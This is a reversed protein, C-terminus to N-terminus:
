LEAWFLDLAVKIDMGGTKVQLDLDALKQYIKKLKVLPFKRLQALSKKVVFPHLKSVRAIEMEGYGHNEKLDAVKLLNRFQYVFMSLLYFPDEGNKLHKHLLKAAEKKNNNALADITAFINGGLNARVLAEVDVEEIMRGACFNALKQLEFHLARTDSGAFIILKELAAKSISSGPAFETLARLIWQGLKLGSLETFEQSKVDVEKTLFTFLANNKKPLGDEWFVVVLDQDSVLSSIREKLYDLTEKQQEAATQTILNKVIVLRKPALLNAVGLVDLLKEKSRVEPYDFVSLGSGAPDSKLFKERIEAAKQWSRFSDKGYFFIIM